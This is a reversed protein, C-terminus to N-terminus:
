AFAGKLATRLGEVDFAPPSDTSVPTPPVPGAAPARATLLALDLFNGPEAPEDPTPEDPGHSAIRDGLGKDIAEQATFWTDGVQMLERWSEATGGAKRAYIAAITNSLMGVVDAADHLEEETGVAGSMGDHIMMTANDEFVVEDCALAIFSAASAAIGDIYATKAGGRYNRIANFIASGEFISGGGSNIHVDVPGTLGTLMTAVDIAKVGDWGGIYDYVYLGTATGEDAAAALRLKETPGDAVTTFMRASMLDHQARVRDTVAALQEPDMEARGKGRKVVRCRCQNGYEAGVCNKFGKNDPYDAYADERNKYLHGNNNRCPECTNDDVHAKVVWRRAMVPVALAPRTM